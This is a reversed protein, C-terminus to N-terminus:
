TEQVDGDSDAKCTSPLMISKSGAIIHSLVTLLSVLKLIWDHVVQEWWFGEKLLPCARERQNEMVIKVAEDSSWSRLAPCPSVCDSSYVRTGVVSKCVAFLASCLILFLWLFILLCTNGLVPNHYFTHLLFLISSLVYSLPFPIFFSQLITVPPTHTWWQTNHFGKKGWLCGPQPWVGDGGGKGWLKM